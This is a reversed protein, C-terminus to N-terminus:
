FALNDRKKLAPRMFDEKLIKDLTGLLYDANERNFCMPPKIKLVNNDPGDQSMLIGHERMRNVLYTTEATAPKLTEPDLNMEVGLFLGHGRIECIIPHQAALQHLGRILYTGMSAAHQQLQEERIVRLVARGVACSVPNGGFTNFYEMGNAFAEAIPRTCVVAGLPHGNGIPKGLTVIDPTVGQLEYAWFADGVRGFGTQVEDAICVGGASRVYGYVRKLYDPPPVIQGGCSLITEGLFGAIRRGRAQVKQILEGVAEAYLSGVAATSGRYKGRFGDPMPAVHVFDPAGKGGKGDFKYSSHEVCANTNGHYGSELVIMDKQGTFNRAMRLALENAESGSNVFHVVCLEEPFFKLLEEAFGVIERHLYRTNTNLLAAQRGLARVVRPHQHGVHPVNNVTDLYRRGTEDYLYQMYGRVMHLPRKYSLSLSKGLHNKRFELMEDVRRNEAVDADRGSVRFLLGPDPCISLWVRKKEPFTVGPFDGTQGLMDLMIQFHLHPPWNGNEPAAGITAIVEGQGVKQGPTLGTLSAPSLHGYLTYFEPGGAPQHKLIITPGYNKDGANDQLSYVVGDVPSAVPTGAEMWIDTGLHVSRWVPGNDGEVTYADTTYFPRTEGYGGIGPEGQRLEDITQHFADTKDFRSDHGLDLSGISLDLAIPDTIAIPDAISGIAIAAWERFAKAKPCPEWGCAERFTFHALAPPIQRWKALLEWAPAESILLYRNDPEKQKNIASTTVSIVLRAAIMQYLVAIENELLPYVRHFGRLVEAAAELPDKRGMVAYACACALENITHTVITDGFDIVGCVEYVDSTQRLLINYDNADHYHVSHRLGPMSPVVEQEFGRVFFNVTDTQEGPALYHQYEKTWLMESINWRYFRQTAPHAFDELARSIHGLAEGLSQLTQTTIPNAKAWIVGPVWTLLRVYRTRGEEDQFAPILGGTKDTLPQPLTLPIKKGALHLMVANQMEWNELDLDPRSIKLTYELGNESHLHYTFDVEGPLARAVARLGFITLARSQAEEPSIRLTHFAPM